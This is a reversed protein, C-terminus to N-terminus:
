VTLARPDLSVKLRLAAGECCQRNRTVSAAAMKEAPLDFLHVANGLAKELYFHADGLSVTLEMSELQLDGKDRRVRM